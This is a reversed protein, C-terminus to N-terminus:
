KKKRSTKIARNKSSARPQLRRSTTSREDSRATPEEIETITGLNVDHWLLLAEAIGFVTEPYSGSTDDTDVSFQESFEDITAALRLLSGRASAWQAISLGDLSPQERLDSLFAENALANRLAAGREGDFARSLANGFARVWDHHDFALVKRLVPQLPPYSRLAKIISPISDKWVSQPYNVDRASPSPNELWKQLSSALDARGAERNAMLLARAVLPRAEEAQPPTDNIGLYTEVLDAVDEEAALIVLRLARLNGHWLNPPVRRAMGVAGRAVFSRHDPPWHSRQQLVRHGLAAFTLLETQVLNDNLGGEVGGLISAAELPLAEAGLKASMTTWTRLLSLMNGFDAFESALLRKGSVSSTLVADLFGSRALHREALRHCDAWQGTRYLLRAVIAATPVHQDLAEYAEGAAAKAARAVDNPHDDDLFTDDKSTLWEVAVSRPLAAIDESTMPRRTKANIYRCADPMAAFEDADLRPDFAITRPWLSDIQEISVNLWLGHYIAEARSSRDTENSLAKGRFHKFALEHLLKFRNPRRAKILPLMEQRLDQRHRLGGDDDAEVLTVERKFADFIDQAEDRPPNGSTDTSLQWPDFDLSDGEFTEERSLPSPTGRAMVDRIVGPTIRRVVLGPDALVRVRQDTVHGLIRRVLIGDILAKSLVGDGRPESALESVLQNVVTNGDSDKASSFVSGLLKLTLPHLGGSKSSVLSAMMAEILRQAEGIGIPKGADGALALLMQICGQKDLAGLGIEESSSPYHDLFRLPMKRGSVVLRLRPWGLGNNSATLVRVFDELRRVDIDSYQVIEFTDLILLFPRKWEFMSELSAVHTDVAYRFAKLLPLLSAFVAVDRSGHPLYDTLEGVLAADPSATEPAVEMVVSLARANEELLRMQEVLEPFQAGVQSCMEALLLEPRRASITARDFDLYAFPYRSRAAEAHELAFKAILTTKGVGGIGWIIMPRAGLAARGLRKTLRGLSGLLSAAPVVGVFDRLRGIENERGYFRIRSPDTSLGEDGDIGVMRRFPKLLRRMAIERNLEDLNVAPAGELNQLWSAAVRTAELKPLTATEMDVSAASLHERLAISIPDLFRSKTRALADQIDKLTATSLVSRRAEQTLAWRTGEPRHVEEAFSLVNRQADQSHKDDLGTGVALDRALFSSVTAASVLIPWSASGAYSTIDPAASSTAPETQLAFKRAWAPLDEVDFGLGEPENASQTM